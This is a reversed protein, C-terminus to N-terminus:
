SSPPPSFFSKNLEKFTHRHESELTTGSPSLFLLSRMKEEARAMVIGDETKFITFRFRAKVIGGLAVGTADFVMELNEGGASAPPSSEVVRCRVKILRGVQVVYEDGMQLPETAPAVVKTIVGRGRLKSESRWEQWRTQTALREWAAEVSPCHPLPETVTVTWDVDDPTSTAGTPTSPRRKV